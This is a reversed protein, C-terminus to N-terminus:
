SLGDGRRGLGAVRGGRGGAVGTQDHDVVGSPDGADEVAPTAIAVGPLQGVRVAGWAADVRGDGLGVDVPGDADATVGAPDTGGLTLGLAELVVDGVAGVPRRPGLLGLEVM